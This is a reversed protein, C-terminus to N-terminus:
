AEPEAFKSAAAEYREIARALFGDGDLSLGSGGWEKFLSSPEYIDLLKEVPDERWSAPGLFNFEISGRDAIWRSFVKFAGWFLMDSNLYTVRGVIGPYHLNLIKIAAKLVAFGNDLSGLEELMRQSPAANTGAGAKYYPNRSEDYSRNLGATGSVTGAVGGVNGIDLIYSAPGKGLALVKTAMLEFVLVGARLHRWPHMNEANAFLLRGAVYPRGLRDTQLSDAFYMEAGPNTQESFLRRAMGPEYYELVNWDRRWEATARMRSLAEEVDMKAAILYRQLLGELDASFFPDRALNPYSDQILQASTANWRARLEVVLRRRAATEFQAAVPDKTTAARGAGSDPVDAVRQEATTRRQATQTFFASGPCCRQLALAFVALLAFCRSPRPDRGSAPRRRGM